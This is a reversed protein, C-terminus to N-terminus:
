LKLETLSTPETSLYALHGSSFRPPRNPQTGNLAITSLPSRASHHTPARSTFQSVKASNTPKPLPFSSPCATESSPLTNGQYIFNLLSALIGGTGLSSVQASSRQSASAFLPKSIPPTSPHTQQWFVSSLSSTRPSHSANALLTTVTFEGAAVSLLEVLQEDFVSCDLRYEVHYHRLGKIYGRITGQTVTPSLNAIWALLSKLQVPLSPLQHRCAFNHFLSVASAYTKHTSPVIGNWM